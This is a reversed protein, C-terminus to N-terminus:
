RYRICNVWIPFLIEGDATPPPPNTFRVIVESELFREEKGTEWDKGGGRMMILWCWFRGRNRIGDGLGGEGHSTAKMSNITPINLSPINLSPTALQFASLHFLTSLQFTSPNPRGRFSVPCKHVRCGGWWVPEDMEMHFLGISSNTPHRRDMTLPLPTSFREVWVIPLPDKQSRCYYYHPLNGWNMIRSLTASGTSEIGAVRQAPSIGGAQLRPAGFFYVRM